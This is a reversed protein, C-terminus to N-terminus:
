CIRNTSPNGIVTVPFIWFNLIRSSSVLSRPSSRKAFRSVAYFLAHGIDTRAEAGARIEQTMRTTPQCHVQVRLRNWFIPPHRMCAHRPRDPRSRNGFTGQYFRLNNYARLETPLAVKVRKRPEM